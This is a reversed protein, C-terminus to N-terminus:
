AKRIGVFEEILHEVTKRPTIKDIEFAKMEKNLGPINLSKLPLRSANFDFFFIMSELLKVSEASVLIERKFNKEENYYGSVIILAKLKESLLFYQIEQVLHEPHSLLQGISVGICSMGIESPSRGDSSELETWKKFDKRLIDALQLTSVDHMKYKLLQYLGNCGFRGAGNLLLSTMYKDKSTCRPDKLNDTDLLIGALLLRSFSRCALMEPSYMAFKEAIATCCSCEEGRTVTKVWPYVTDGEQRHAIKSSKVLVIKLSGFLDYYSLDIEDAFILSSQDIQCSDLLWKLEAHSGLNARKINIVPVTCFQASRLTENLYFAYMITSAAVGVDANDIGMVAHLFRGPVGANVDDKRERLYANLKILSECSEVIELKPSLGNYYLGASVPFSIGSLNEKTESVVYTKEPNRPSCDDGLYKSYLEKVASQIDLSESSSRKVSRSSFGSVALNELPLDMVEEPIDSLSRFVNRSISIGQSELPGQDDAKALTPRVLGDFFPNDRSRIYAHQQNQAFADFNSM